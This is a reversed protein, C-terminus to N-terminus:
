ALFLSRGAHPGRGRSGDGAALGDLTGHAGDVVDVDAEAPLAVELLVELVEVIGVADPDARLAVAAHDKVKFLGVDGVDLEVMVLALRRVRGGRRNRCCFLDLNAEACLDYEGAAEDATFFDELGGVVALRGLRSVGVKIVEGAM